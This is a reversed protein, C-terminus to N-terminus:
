GGNQCTKTNNRKTKESQKEIEFFCIGSSKGVVPVGGKKPFTEGL